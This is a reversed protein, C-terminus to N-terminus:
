IQKGEWKGLKNRVNEPNRKQERVRFFPRVELSLQKEEDKQQKYLHKYPNQKSTGALAEASYVSCAYALGWICLVLILWLVGTFSFSILRFICSLFSTLTNTMSQMITSIFWVSKRDPSQNFLFFVLSISAFSLREIFLGSTISIAIPLLVAM